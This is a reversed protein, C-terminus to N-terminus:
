RLPRNLEYEGEIRSYKGDQYDYILPMAEPLDVFAIQEDSLGELHKIIGRLTNGHATVIINEGREVRPLIESLLFPTTRAHAEALSEGGPPQARYSRRWSLVNAAGYEAEAEHKELGQLAGYYRENLADSAFIPLDDSGCKNSSHTWHLYKPDDHQFIGTREQQSLIILLTSQARTLDSTFAAAYSYKKCHIACAEAEQIGKISLPVDIWGTFRNCLNWRSEGHRVLVLVGM